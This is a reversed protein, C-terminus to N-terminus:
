EKVLRLVRSKNNMEDALQLFYLGTALTSTNLQFASTNSVLQTLIARGYADYVLLNKQGAGFDEFQLNCVDKAPNPFASFNFVDIENVNLPPSVYFSIVENDDPVIGPSCEGPPGYGSSLTYSFFWLGEGLPNIIITDTDTCIVTLFGMCHLSSAFFSNEFQSYEITGDCGGSPFVTTIIIKITDVVTPEAPIVEMSLIQQAQATQFAFFCSLFLLTISKM